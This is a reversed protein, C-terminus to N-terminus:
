LKLFLPKNWYSWIVTTLIVIFGHRSTCCQRRSSVQVQSKVILRVYTHSGSSLLLLSVSALWASTNNIHGTLKNLSWLHCIGLKNEQVKALFWITGAYKFPWSLVKRANIENQTCEDDWHLISSTSVSNCQFAQMSLNQSPFCTINVDATKQCDSRTWGSLLNWILRRSKNLNFGYSPCPILKWSMFVFGESCFSFNMVYSWWM